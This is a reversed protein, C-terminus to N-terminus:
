TLSLRRFSQILRVLKGHNLKSRRWTKTDTTRCNFCQRRIGDGLKMRVDDTYITGYARFRPLPEDLTGGQGNPSQSPSLALSIPCGPARADYTRRSASLDRGYRYDDRGGSYAYANVTGEYAPHEPNSGPVSVDLVSGTEFHVIPLQSPAPTPPHTLRNEFVDSDANRHYRAVNTSIERDFCLRSYVDPLIGLGLHHAM